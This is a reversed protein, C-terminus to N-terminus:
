GRRFRKINRLKLVAPLLAGLLRKVVYKTNRKLQLRFLPRPQFRAFTSIKASPWNNKSMIRKVITLRDDYRKLAYAPDSIFLWQLGADRASRFVRDSVDGGPVAGTVIKEQLIDELVAISKTWEEALVSDGNRFFPTPHTHTHTGIVHGRRHLEMIQERNLFTPAGILATVIFFHGRMQYRELMDAINMASLGGDDFSLMVVVETASEHPNANKTTVCPHGSDAIAQLDSDFHRVGHKYAFATPNQFGSTEPHDTVDHYGFCCVRQIGRPPSQESM